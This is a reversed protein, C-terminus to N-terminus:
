VSIFRRCCNGKTGENACGGACGWQRLPKETETGRARVILELDFLVQHWSHSCVRGPLAPSARGLCVNSEGLASVGPLGPELIFSYLSGRLFISPSEEAHVSPQM